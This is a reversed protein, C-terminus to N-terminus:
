LLNTEALSIFTRNRPYAIDTTIPINRINHMAYINTNNWIANAQKTSGYIVKDFTIVGWLNSTRRKSAM